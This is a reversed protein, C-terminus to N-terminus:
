KKAKEIIKSLLPEFCLGAINDSVYCIIANGNTDCPDEVNPIKLALLQEKTTNSKHFKCDRCRWVYRNKSKAKVFRQLNM